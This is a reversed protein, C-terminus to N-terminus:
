EFNSQDLPLGEEMICCGDKYELTEIGIGLKYIAEYNKYAEESIKKKM